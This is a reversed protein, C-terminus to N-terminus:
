NKFDSDEFCLDDSDFSEEEIEEIEVEEESSLDRYIVRKRVFRRAIRRNEESDEDEDVM